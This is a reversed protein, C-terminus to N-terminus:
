EKGMEISLKRLFAVLKIAFGRAAQVVTLASPKQFVM